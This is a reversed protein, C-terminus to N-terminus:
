INFKGKNVITILLWEGSLDNRLNNILHENYEFEKKEPEEIEEVNKLYKKIM